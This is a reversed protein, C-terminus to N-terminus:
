DRLPRWRIAVIDTADRVAEWDNGADSYAAITLVTDDDLTVSQTYSGTFTTVDLYYVEDEWTLGEDHSVMARSGPDGPGYRTDHVVVVTGDALSAPAGYTQGYVTCLQRLNGWTVGNDPSDAVFVNKYGREDLGPPDGPQLPRQYRVTSFVKGSPLTATDGESRLVQTAGLGEWSHGGDVSRYLLMAMAGPAYLDAASGDRTDVVCLLADDPMRMLRAPYREDYREPVALTAVQGWSRGEDASALIRVDGGPEPPGVVSVFTGDAAIDFAAAGEGCAHDTWTRGGDGSRCMIHDLRVYVDGAPSQRVGCSVIQPNIADDHPLLVKEAPVRSLAGGRARLIYDGARMSRLRERTPIDVGGLRDTRLDPIPVM